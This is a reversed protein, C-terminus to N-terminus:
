DDDRSHRAAKVESRHKKEVLRKVKAAKTVKTKRRPRPKKAALQLFAFLRARAADRNQAQTRYARSDITLVGAETIRKGAMNAIRLKIDDPLSSRGVDFSLEVATSVKNVNQGGPGSSRVFRETLENPEIVIGPAIVMRMAIVEAGM